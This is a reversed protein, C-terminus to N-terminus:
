TLFTNSIFIYNSFKFGKFGLILVSTGCPFLFVFYVAVAVCVCVFVRVCVSLEVCLCLIVFSLALM